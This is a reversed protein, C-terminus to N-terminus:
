SVSGETPSDNTLSLLRTAYAIINDPNLPAVEDFIRQSKQRYVTLNHAHNQWANLLQDAVIEAEFEPYYYGADAIWPSNHILPYDGWLVDLYLNNQENDWQHSIVANAISAAM